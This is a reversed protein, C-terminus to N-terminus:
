KTSTTDSDLLPTVKGTRYRLVGAALPEGSGAASPRGAILESPDAIMLGLNRMNACGINSMMTNSPDGDNDPKRWDPCAPPIAVSRVVAVRVGDPAAIASREFAIGERTLRDGVAAAQRTEIRPNDGSVRIEVADGYGIQQRDLFDDLSRIEGQSMEASGKAFTVDHHLEVRRVQIERHADAESWLSASPTCAAACGLVLLLSSVRLFLSRVTM